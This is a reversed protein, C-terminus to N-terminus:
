ILQIFSQLLAEMFGQFKFAGLSTTGRHGKGMILECSQAGQDM